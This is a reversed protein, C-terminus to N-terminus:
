KASALFSSSNIKHSFNIEDPYNTELLLHGIKSWSPCEILFSIVKFPMCVLSNSPGPELWLSLAHRIHSIGERGGSEYRRDAEWDYLHDQGVLSRHTEPCYVTFAPSGIKRVLFRRSVAFTGSKNEGAYITKTKYPPEDWRRDKCKLSWPLDDPWNHPKEENTGFNSPENMDIWLAAFEIEDHFRRIEDKWWEKTSSKFFDPFVTKESPWVYGVMYGGAHSEQDDPIYSENYWKIYADAQQGRLAPPYNSTFDFVIAPDKM